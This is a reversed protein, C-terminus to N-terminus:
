VCREYLARSSAYDGLASQRYIALGTCLVACDLGITDLSDVMDLLGLGIADLRRAHPWENPNDSVDDPYVAALAAILGLRIAQRKYM